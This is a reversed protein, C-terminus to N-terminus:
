NWDFVFVPRSVVKYFRSRSAFLRAKDRTTATRIVKNNRTDLVGWQLREKFVDNINLPLSLTTTNM